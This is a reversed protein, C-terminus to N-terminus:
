AVKGCLSTAEAFISHTAHKM